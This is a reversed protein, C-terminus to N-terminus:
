KNKEIDNEECYYICEENKREQEREGFCFQFLFTCIRKINGYRSFKRKQIFFYNTDNKRPPNYMSYVIYITHKISM